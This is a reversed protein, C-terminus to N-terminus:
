STYPSSFSVSRKAAVRSSYAEESQLKAQYIEHLRLSCLASAYLPTSTHFNAAPAETDKLRTM